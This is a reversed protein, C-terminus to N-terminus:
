PTNPNTSDTGKSNSGKGLKVDNVNNGYANPNGDFTESTAPGPLLSLDVEPENVDSVSHIDFVLKPKRGGMVEPLAEHPKKVGEYHGASIVSHRALKQQAKM